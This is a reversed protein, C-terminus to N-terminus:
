SPLSSIEVMLHKDAISSKVNARDARAATLSVVLSSLNKQSRKMPALMLMLISAGVDAGGVVRPSGVKTGVSGAVRGGVSRGVNGGVVTPSGVMTGVSGTVRAGVSRGVIGGVLIPSGVMAGVSKAVM